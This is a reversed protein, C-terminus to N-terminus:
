VKPCPRTNAKMWLRQAVDEYNAEGEEEEEKVEGVEDRIKSKWQELTECTVPWHITEDGCAFCFRHAKHPQLSGRTMVYRCDRVGEYTLPADDAGEPFSVCVAGCIDTIDLPFSEQKVIPPVLRHVIGECGPHPCFKLDCSSAVFNEDAAELLSEYVTPSPALSELESQTLPVDCEHHPCTVTMGGGRSQACDAIYDGMCQTCFGHGCGRFRTWESSDPDFTEFCILCTQPTEEWKLSAPGAKNEVSVGADLFAQMPDKEFEAMAKESDWHHFTLYREVHSEQVSKLLRTFDSDVASSEDDMTAEKSAERNTDVVNDEDTAGKAPVSVNAANNKKTESDARECPPSPPHDDDHIGALMHITPESVEKEDDPLLVGIGIDTEDRSDISDNVNYNYIVQNARNQEEREALIQQMDVLAKERRALREQRVQVTSWTEFWAFPMTLLYHGHARNESLVTAMLEDDVGYPDAYLLARAELQAALQAHHAEGALECPTRSSEDVITLLAGFNSVIATCIGTRGLEAAYHLATRGRADVSNMSPGQRQRRGAGDQNTSSSSSSSWSLILLVVDMRQAELTQCTKADLPPPIEMPSSSSSSEEEDEKYNGRFLRVVALAAKKAGAASNEDGKNRHKTMTDMTSTCARIGVNDMVQQQQQLVNAEVRTLGGAAVILSTQERGNKVNPSCKENQLFLRVLTPSAMRAAEHLPTTATTASSAAAAVHQNEPTSTTPHQSPELLTWFGAFKPMKKCTNRSTTNTTTTTTIVDPYADNPSKFDDAVFVDSPNMETQLLPTDDDHEEWKEQQQPPSSQTNKKHRRQKAVKFKKSNPTPRSREEEEEQQIWAVYDARTATYARIATAEDEQQFARWLRRRLSRIAIERRSQHHHRHSSSDNM